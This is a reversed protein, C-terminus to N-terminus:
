LDVEHTMENKCGIQWYWVCKMTTQSNMFRSCCRNNNKPLLRNKQHKKRQTLIDRSRERPNKQAALQIAAGLMKKISEELYIEPPSRLGKLLNGIKREMFADFYRRKKDALDQKKIQLAPLCQPDDINELLQFLRTWLTQAEQSSLKGESILQLIPQAMRPDPACSLFFECREKLHSISADTWMECLWLMDGPFQQEAIEFWLDQFINPNTKSEKPLSRVLSKGVIEGLQEIAQHLEVIPHLRWLDILDELAQEERNENISESIQLLVQTILALWGKGKTLTRL